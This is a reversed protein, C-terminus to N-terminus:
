GGDPQGSSADHRTTSGDHGADRMEQGGEDDGGEEADWGSDFDDSTDEMGAEGTGEHAGDARAGGDPEATGGTLGSLSACAVFVASLVLASGCALSRRTRGSRPRGEDPSGARM